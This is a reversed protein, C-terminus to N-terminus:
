RRRFDLLGAKRARLAALMQDRKLQSLPDKALNKMEFPDSALNFLETVASDSNVVLKDSGVAVMRWDDKGGMGGEAFVSEPRDGDVGMMLPALNHGQIGEFAPEGCLGLVTPLIDVQSAVIDSASAHLVRPFRIALVVRTSEEYAVGAGKLGHSGLQEGRDSVFVVITDNAAGAGDLAALLKGFQQDMANWSAYRAALDKRAQEESDHPVNKRLRIKAPDTAAGSRQADLILKVFFPSPTKGDVADVATYGALKLVADLTVEEARLAAGDTLVGNVHPYRGTLIGSRAPDTEPDCAYARPFVVAGEAFKALNPSAVDSDGSWPADVGRWGPAIVLAVNPKKEAGRLALPVLPAALLARRSIV